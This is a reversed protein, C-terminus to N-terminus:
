ERTAAAVRQPSRNEESKGQGQQGRQDPIKKAEAEAVKLLTEWIAADSLGSKRLPIAVELVRRMIPDAVEPIANSEQDALNTERKLRGGLGDIIKGLAQLHQKREGDVYLQIQRPTTGVHRAVQAKNKFQRGPGFSDTLLKLFDEYFGMMGSNNFNDCSDIEM